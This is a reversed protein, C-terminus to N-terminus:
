ARAAVRFASQTQAACHVKFEDGIDRFFLAWESRARAGSPFRHHELQLILHFLFLWLTHAPKLRDECM